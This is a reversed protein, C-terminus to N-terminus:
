NKINQTKSELQAATAQELSMNLTFMNSTEYYNKGNFMEATNNFKIGTIIQIVQMVVDKNSVTQMHEVNNFKMYTVDQKQRGKWYQCFELSRTNVTGDGDGFSVLPSGDPFSGKRFHLKRVTDLGYGHFCHVEM